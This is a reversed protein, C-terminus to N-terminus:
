IQGKFQNVSAIYHEVTGAGLATNYFKKWYEARGHVDIPIAGPRLKYFLRCVAAAILPSYNLVSWEIARLDFDFATELAKIDTLSSRKIVDIFAIEDCQFLGRGAGDRTKDAVTGCQTEAAATECLMNVAMGNSGHGLVDCVAIAILKIQEVSTLGYGIM